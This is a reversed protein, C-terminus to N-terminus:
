QGGGPLRERRTLWIEIHTDPGVIARLENELTTVELPTPGLLEVSLRQGDYNVDSPAVDTHGDAWQQTALRVRSIVAAISRAQPHGSRLSTRRTWNVVVPKAVGLRAELRAALDDVPPPSEASSLDVRLEDDSEEVHEIDFATSGGALFWDRVVDRVRTPEASADSVNSVNSPSAPERTQTWRVEVQAERGSM